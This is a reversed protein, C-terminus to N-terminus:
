GLVCCLLLGCCCSVVILDVEVYCLCLMVFESELDLTHLTTNKELAQALSAAGADGVCNGSSCPAETACCVILVV